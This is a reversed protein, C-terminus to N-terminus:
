DIDCSLAHRKSRHALNCIADVDAETAMRITPTM